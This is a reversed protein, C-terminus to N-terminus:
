QKEELDLNRDGLHAPTPPSVVETDTELPHIMPLDFIIGGSETNVTWGAERYKKILYTKASNINILDFSAITSNPIYTRYLGPKQIDATLKEDIYHELVKIQETLIPQALKIADAATIM